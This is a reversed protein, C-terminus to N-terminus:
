LNNGMMSKGDQTNCAGGKGHMKKYLAELQQDNLDPHMKKMFTKMQEFDVNENQMFKQMDKYEESSVQKMMDGMNSGQHHQAHASSTTTSQAHAMYAGTGGSVILAAAFTGLIMMRKM